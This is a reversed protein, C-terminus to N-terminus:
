YAPKEAEMQDFQINFDFIKIAIKQDIFTTSNFISQLQFIKQECMKARNENLQDNVKSVRTTPDQLKPCINLIM